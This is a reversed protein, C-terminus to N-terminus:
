FFHDFDMFLYPPINAEDPYFKYHKTANLNEM